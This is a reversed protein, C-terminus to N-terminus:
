LRDRVFRDFVWEPSQYLTELLAKELEIKPLKKIHKEVKGHLEEQWQEAEKQCEEVEKLYKDAETPFITFFLAVSHKCVVRRDKAFPCDCKSFRPNKTNLFVHYLNEGSGAVNGEYENEAIQKHSKVNKDKYYEYGFWASRGSALSILGM